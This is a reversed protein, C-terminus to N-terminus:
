QERTIGFEKAVNESTIGMGMLCNSAEENEFVADDLFNPDVGGMMDFNSMSEVGGGIGISIDGAKIGNAISAVAQLGSSCMRNIAQCSTTEPIGAMFMAMRIQAAASGPALVNGIIVEDIQNAPIKSKKIADALVVKLM